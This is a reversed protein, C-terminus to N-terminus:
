YGHFFHRRPSEVFLTGQAGYLFQQVVTSRNTLLANYNISHQLGALRFYARTDSSFQQRTRTGIGNRHGAQRGM